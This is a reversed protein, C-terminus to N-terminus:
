MKISFFANASIIPSHPAYKLMCTKKENERFYYKLFGSAPTYMISLEALAM